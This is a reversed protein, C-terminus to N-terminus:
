TCSLKKLVTKNAMYCVLSQETAPGINELYQVTCQGSHDRMFIKQYNQKKKKELLIQEVYFTIKTKKWSQKEEKQFRWVHTFM